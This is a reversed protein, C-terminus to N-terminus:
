KRVRITWDEQLWATMLQCLIHWISTWHCLWHTKPYLYYEWYGGQTVWPLNVQQYAFKGDRLMNSNTPIVVMLGQTKPNGSFCFVFSNSLVWKGPIIHEMNMADSLVHKGACQFWFAGKQRELRSTRSFYIALWGGNWSENLMRCLKPIGKHEHHM